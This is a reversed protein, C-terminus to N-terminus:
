AQDIAQQEAEVAEPISSARMSDIIAWIVAHDKGQKRHDHEAQHDDIM